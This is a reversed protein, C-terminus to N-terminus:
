SVILLGLMFDEKYQLAQLVHSVLFLLSDSQSLILTQWTMPRTLARTKIKNVLSFM